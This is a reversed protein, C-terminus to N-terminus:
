ASAIGCAKLFASDFLFDNERIQSIVPCAPCEFGDPGLPDFLCGCASCEAIIGSGRWFLNERAIAQIQEAQEHYGTHESVFRDSYDRELECQPCDPVCQTGNFNKVHDFM